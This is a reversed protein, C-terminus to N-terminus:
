PVAAMPESVATPPLSAEGSKMMIDPATEPPPVPPVVPLQRRRPRRHTFRPKQVAFTNKRLVFGPKQDIFRPGAVGSGWRHYEKKIREGQTFVAIQLVEPLVNRSLVGCQRRKLKKTYELSRRSFSRPLLLIFSRSSDMKRLCSSNDRM